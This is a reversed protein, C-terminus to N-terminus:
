SICTGRNGFRHQAGGGPQIGVSLVVMNIIGRDRGEDMEVNRQQDRAPDGSHNQLLDNIFESYFMTKEDETKRKKKRGITRQKYKLGNFLFGMRKIQNKMRSSVPKNSNTFGQWIGTRNRNQPASNAPTRNKMKQGCCSFLELASRVIRM